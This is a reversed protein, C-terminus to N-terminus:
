EVELFNRIRSLMAGPQNRYETVAICLCRSSNRLYQLPTGPSTPDTLYILKLKPFLHCLGAFTKEDPHICAGWRFAHMNHKLKKAESRKLPNINFGYDKGFTNKLSLKRLFEELHDSDLQSCQQYYNSDPGIFQVYAMTGIDHLLPTDHQAVQINRHENLTVALERAAKPQDSVIFVPQKGLETIQDSYKHLIFKRFFLNM